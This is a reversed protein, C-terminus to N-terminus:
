KLWLALASITIVILSGLAGFGISITQTRAKVNNMFKEVTTVRGNQDGINKSLAGITTDIREHQEKNVGALVGHAVTLNNVEKSVSRIEKLVLELEQM